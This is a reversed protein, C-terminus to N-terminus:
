AEEKEKASEIKALIEAYSDEVEERPLNGAELVPDALKRCEEYFIRARELIQPHDGVVDLAKFLANEADAFHGLGEHFSVLNIQSTIYVPLAPEGHAEYARESYDEAVLGWHRAREMQKQNFLAVSIQQASQAVQVSIQKKGDENLDSLAEMGQTMAEDAEEFKEARAAIVALNQLAGFKLNITSPNPETNMAEEALEVARRNSVLAADFDSSQALISALNIHTAAANGHFLVGDAILAECIESAKQHLVRAEDSKNQRQRVFGLENSIQARVKLVDQSDEVVMDLIALAETLAPEAVQLQNQRLAQGGQNALAKAAELERNTWKQVEM